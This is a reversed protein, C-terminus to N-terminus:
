PGLDEGGTRRYGHGSAVAVEHAAFGVTLQLHPASDPRADFGAHVHDLDHGGAAVHRGAGIRAQRLVRHRLQPRGHFLGM